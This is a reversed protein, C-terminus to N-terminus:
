ADYVLKAADIVARHLDYFDDFAHMKALFDRFRAFVARIEALEADSARMAEASIIIPCTLSELHDEENGQWYWEAAQSEIVALLKAIETESVQENAAHLRKM